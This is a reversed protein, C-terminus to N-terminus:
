NDCNNILVYFQKCIELIENISLSFTKKNKIKISELIKLINNRSISIKKNKNFFLEISNVLNKNKYPM